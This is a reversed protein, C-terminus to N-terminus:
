FLVKLDRLISKVQYKDTVANISKIEEPDLNHAAWKIITNFNERGGVVESIENYDQEAKAKM